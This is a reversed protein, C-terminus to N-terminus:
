HAGQIRHLRGQLVQYPLKRLKDGRPLVLEMSAAAMEDMSDGSLFAFLRLPFPSSSSVSSPAGSIAFKWKDHHTYQPNKFNSFNM